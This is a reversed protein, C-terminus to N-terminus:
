NQFDLFTEFIEVGHKCQELDSKHFALGSLACDLAKNVVNPQSIDALATMFILVAGVSFLRPHFMLHNLLLTQLKM